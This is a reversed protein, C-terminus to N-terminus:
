WDARAQRDQEINFVYPTGKFGQEIMGEPSNLFPNTDRDLKALYANVLHEISELTFDFAPDMAERPVVDGKPDKENFPFHTELRALVRDSWNRYADITPLVYEVLRAITAASEAPDLDDEVQEITDGAWMLAQRIPGMVPGSWGSQLPDWELGYRADIIQAWATELYWFPEDAEMLSAFRFVIWEASAIAFAASARQSIKQLRELLAEDIPEEAVEVNWDDWEYRIIKTQIEALPIYGPASTTV